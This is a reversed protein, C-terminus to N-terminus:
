KQEKLFARAMELDERTDVGLPVGNVRCVAIRMYSDLARMQELKRETERKSPPLSVFKELAERTYAYIGIHHWFPPNHFQHTQRVFDQAFVPGDTRDMAALVKVINPNDIDAQSTILSALTSIEARPMDLGALCIAIDEPAITPLDGQLNVIRDYNGATDRLKLAAMVRDSGSPLHPPTIIADGGVDWIAQAISTEAAAVLVDGVGSEMARQWVHVIMPKGNINALPKGPLRTSAMRAPIVIITRNETTM